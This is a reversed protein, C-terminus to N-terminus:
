AKSGNEGAKYTNYANELELVLQEHGKIAGCAILRLESKDAPIQIMKDVLDERRNYMWFRFYKNEAIRAIEGLYDPNDPQFTELETYRAGQKKIAELADALAKLDAKRGSLTFLIDRIWQLM